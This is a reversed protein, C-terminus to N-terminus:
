RRLKATWRYIPNKRRRAAAQVETTVNRAVWLSPDLQYDPALWSALDDPGHQDIDYIHFRADPQGAFYDTVQAHFPAHYSRWIEKATETDTGYALAIREILSGRAKKSRGVHKARSAIWSETDRVNLIFYADPYAAHLEKFYCNAELYV